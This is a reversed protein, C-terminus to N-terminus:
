EPTINELKKKTWYGDKDRFTPIGSAATVGAGTM